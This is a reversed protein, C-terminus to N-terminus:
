ISAEDAHGASADIFILFSSAPPAVEPQDLFDQVMLGAVAAADRSNVVARSVLALYLGRHRYPITVDGRQDLPALLPLHDRDPGGTFIIRSLKKVNM